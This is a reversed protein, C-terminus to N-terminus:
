ETNATNPTPEEHNSRFPPKLCSIVSERLFCHKMLSHISSILKGHSTRIEAFTIWKKYNMNNM